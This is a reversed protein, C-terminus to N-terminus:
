SALSTEEQMASRPNQTFPIRFWALFLATYLLTSVLSNRFFAWTPVPDTPLGTWFAQIMGEFSLAYRGYIIWSLLNTVLYFLVAGGSSGLLVAPWTRPQNRYSHGWIAVLAFGALVIAMWPGASGPATLNSIFYGGLVVLLWAPKAFAALCFFLALYPQFHEWGLLQAGERVLFLAVIALLISRPQLNM